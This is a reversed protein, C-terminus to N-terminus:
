GWSAFLQKMKALIRDAASRLQNEQEERSLDDRTRADRLEHVALARGMEEALEPRQRILPELSERTVEYVVVDTSATVTATRPEGTLLSMEGFFRGPLIAGVSTEDLRGEVAIRVDLLGEMLAFMSDGPEGRRILSEGARFFRRRATEALTTLEAAQLEAFLPVAALLTRRDEVSAGELHRAPMAEHYIDQKPYALTMGAMRLHELVSGLVRHRMKSPSTAAPLIWYRMKYEVGVESVATIRVKSRPTELIGPTSLLAAELVRLAREPPVSFDLTFILELRSKPDPVMFNTVIKQGMINNPVLVLNNHTTRLRTTRWNIGTVCGIVSSEPDPRRGHIMIWDGIRYPRDFNVALGIFVDLIVNRLALGLVLGIIGSTAWLGALSRDFVLVAICGAAALYTLIAAVDVLLKPVAGGLARGLGPWFYHEALRNVLAAGVLWLAVELATVLGGRFAEPRAVPLAALVRDLKVLLLALGAFLALPPLVRRLRGMASLATM